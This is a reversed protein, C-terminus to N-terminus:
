RAIDKWNDFLAILSLSLESFAQISTFFISEKNFASITISFGYRMNQSWISLSCGLFHKWMKRLCKEEPWMEGIFVVRLFPPTFDPFRSRCSKASSSRLLGCEHTILAWKRNKTWYLWLLFPSIIKQCGRGYTLLYFSSMLISSSSLSFVRHKRVRWTHHPCRLFPGFENWQGNERNRAELKPAHGFSGRTEGELSVLPRFCLIILPRFSIFCWPVHNVRAQYADNVGKKVRNAGLLTPTVHYCTWFPLPLNAEDEEEIPLCLFSLNKDKYGRKRDRSRAWTERERNGRNSDERSIYFNVWLDLYAVLFMHAGAPGKVGARSRPSYRTRNGSKSSSKERRSSEPASRLTRFKLSCLPFFLSASEAVGLTWEPLHLIHIHRMDASIFKAAVSFSLGSIARKREAFRSLSSPRLNPARGYHIRKRILCESYTPTSIM